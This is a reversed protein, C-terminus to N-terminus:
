ASACRAVPPGGSPGQQWSSRTWAKSEAQRRVSLSGPVVLMRIGERVRRGRLVEAATRLDDLRGNTCSGLFVVDVPVDRLRTGATLDMYELARAVAVRQAPDAVAEPDPVTSSLQVSQAPTTGWTVFPALEGADVTIEKDFSADPESALARWDAVATDWQGPGPAHKRGRLYAFTKEDPAALGCARRGRHVHQM